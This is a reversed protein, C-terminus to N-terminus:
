NFMCYIYEIRTSGTGAGYGVTTITTLVFFFAMWYIDYTNSEDDSM